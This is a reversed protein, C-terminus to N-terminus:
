SGSGASTQARATPATPAPVFDISQPALKVKRSFELAESKNAAYSRMKKLEQPNPQANKLDEESLGRVGTAVVTGSSGTLAVNFLSKIGSDGKQGEGSAPSFRLSLLRVWGSASASKIRAWGGQRQLIEVPSKESLSALTAADTLPEQKMEIARVTYAVEAARLGSATSAACAVFVLALPFTRM